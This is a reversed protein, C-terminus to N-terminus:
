GEAELDHIEQRNYDIMALFFEDFTPFEQIVAEAIWVVEGPQTERLIVFVDSGDRSAAIPVVQDRGIMRVGARIPLASDLLQNARAWAPGQGLDDSGFLDVTQYFAPWGNAVALFERYNPDLATKIRTEAEVLASATAPPRPTAFPWIGARDVRALHQKVLQAVALEKKWNTM